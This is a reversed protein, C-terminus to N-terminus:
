SSTGPQTNKAAFLSYLQELKQTQTRLDFQQTVLDRGAHSYETWKWDVALLMLIHDALQKTDREKALLGTEQHRVIEPIGAHITSVVPTGVGQAECLVMPLGEMDGSVATVSPGCFVRARRLWDRIVASPQEGLFEARVALQRNLEELENRLEGDGIIALKASPRQKRVRQMARLLYECGKKEALRGTFLVLDRDRPENSPSFYDTDIGIYHVRLKAEPFGYEMAKQRVFKSVCLFQSTYHWLEARKLIFLLSNLGRVLKAPPVTEFSGHLTVILPIGSRRAFPLITAANQSFHAHILAPHTDRIKRHFVPAFAIARYADSRAKSLHSRRSSLLIAPANLPLSRVTPELGVYEIQHQRVLAVQNHIFTENTQLIEDRYVVVTPM